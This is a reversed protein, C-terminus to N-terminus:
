KQGVQAHGSKKRLNLNHIMVRQENRCFSGPLPVASVCKAITLTGGPLASRLAAQPVSSQNCELLRVADLGEPSSCPCIRPQAELPLELARDCSRTARHAEARGRHPQRRGVAGADQVM